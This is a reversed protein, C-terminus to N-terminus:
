SVSALRPASFVVLSIGGLRRACVLKTGDPSWRANVFDGEADTLQRVGTGDRNMVFIQFGNAGHRSFVIRIGDPSWSPWGDLDGTGSLNRSVSGVSNMIFIQSRDQRQRDHVISIGAPSFSAYTCGGGRSIRLLGSGDPHITALEFCDHRAGCTAPDELCIEGPQLASNSFHTTSFIIRAGDPSWSPNINQGLGQTVRRLNSGDANIVFIDSTEDRVSAFAIQTGDPSWAPSDDRESGSTMEKMDSGHDYGDAGMVHLKMGGHRNSVLAIQCGDPSWSPKCDFVFTLSSVQKLPFAQGDTWLLVAFRRLRSTLTTDIVTGYPPARCVRSNEHRYRFSASPGQGSRKPRM